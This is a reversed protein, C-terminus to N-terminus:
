MEFCSVFAPFPVCCIGPAKTNLPHMKTGEAELSGGEKLAHKLFTATPAASVDREENALAFHRRLGFFPSAQCCGLMIIPGWATTQKTTPLSLDLAADKFTVLTANSGLIDAARYMGSKVLDLDATVLLSPVKWDRLAKGQGCLSVPTDSCCPATGGACPACMCNWGIM